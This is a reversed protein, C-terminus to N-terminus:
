FVSLYCIAFINTIVTNSNSPIQHGKITNTICGIRTRLNDDKRVWGKSFRLAATLNGKMYIKRPLGVRPSFRPYHTRAIRVSHLVGLKWWLLKWHLIQELPQTAWVGKCVHICM